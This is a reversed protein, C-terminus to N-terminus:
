FAFISKAQDIRGCVTKTNETSLIGHGKNGQCYDQYFAMLGTKSQVLDNVFNSEARSFNPWENGITKKIDQYSFDKLKQTRDKATELTDDVLGDLWGQVPERFEPQQWAYHLGALIMILYFLKKLM